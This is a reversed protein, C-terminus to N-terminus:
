RPVTAVDPPATGGRKATGFPGKERAEVLQALWAQLTADGKDAAAAAALACVASHRWQCLLPASEARVDCLRTVLPGSACVVRAGWPREALATILRYCAM